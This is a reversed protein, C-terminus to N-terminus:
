NIKCTKGTVVRRVSSGFVQGLGLMTTILRSVANLLTATWSGGKIDLLEESSLM